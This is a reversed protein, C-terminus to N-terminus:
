RKRRRPLPPSWTGAVRRAQGSGLTVVAKDDSRRKVRPRGQHQVRQDAHESLWPRERAAGRGQPSAADHSGAAARGWLRRTLLAMKVRDM